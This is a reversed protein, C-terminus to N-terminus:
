APLEDKKEKAPEWECVVYTDYIERHNPCLRCGLLSVRYGWLPCEVCTIIKPTFCETM